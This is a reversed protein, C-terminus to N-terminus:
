AAVIWTPACGICFFQPSQPRRRKGSWAKPSPRQVKEFVHVQGTAERESM